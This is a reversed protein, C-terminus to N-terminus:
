CAFRKLCSAAGWAVKVGRTSAACREPGGHGWRRSTGAAARTAPTAASRVWRKRPRRGYGPRLRRRVTGWGPRPSRIRAAPARRDTGLSIASRRHHTGGPSGRVSAAGTRRRRGAPHGCNVCFRTRMSRRAANRLSMARERRTWRAAGSSLPLGYRRSRADRAARPIPSGPWAAKAFALQVQLNHL